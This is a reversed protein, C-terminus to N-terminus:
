RKEGEGGGEQVSGWEGTRPGRDLQESVLGCSCCWWLSSWKGRRYPDSEM